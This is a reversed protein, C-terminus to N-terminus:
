LTTCCFCTRLTELVPEFRNHLEAHSRYISHEGSSLEQQSCGRRLKRRVKTPTLQDEKEYLRCGAHTQMIEDETIDNSSAAGNMSVIQLTESSESGKRVITVTIGLDTTTLMAGILNQFRKHSAEFCSRLLEVGDKTKTLVSLRLWFDFGLLVEIEDCDCLRVFGHVALTRPNPGSHQFDYQKYPLSQLYSWAEGIGKNHRIHHIVQLNQLAVETKSADAM